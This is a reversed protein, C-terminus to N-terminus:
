YFAGFQGGTGVSASRVAFGSFCVCFNSERERNNNISPEGYRRRVHMHKNVQLSLLALSIKLQHYYPM